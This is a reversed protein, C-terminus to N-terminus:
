QALAERLAAIETTSESLLTEALPGSLGLRQASRSASLKIELMDPAEKCSFLIAACVLVDALTLTSREDDGASESAHVATIIEDAVQWNELVARAINAQWDRVISQYMAADGFLVPHRSARTLVYLRGIGEVLGALMATDPNFRGGRRALVFSLASMWVSQQWLANLQREIGRYDQVQRLQAMAFSIVTTRLADFGLRTVANRLDLISRGTRNMAASNALKLVRTALVPEAGLVRVVREVNADQDCLMRQVREAVEPYSPLEIAGGSLAMALERVFEFAASSSRTVPGPDSAVM